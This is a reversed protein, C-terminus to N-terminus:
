EPKIGAAKLVPLLRAEENDRLARIEAPSAPWPTAGLDAYRAQMREAQPGLTPAFIMPAHGARRLADALLEVM